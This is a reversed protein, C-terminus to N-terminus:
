AVVVSRESSALSVSLATLISYTIYLLNNQGERPAGGCACATPEVGGDGHALMDILQLQWGPPVIDPRPARVM